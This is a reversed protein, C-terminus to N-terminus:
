PQAGSTALPASLAPDILKATRSLADVVDAQPSALVDRMMEGLLDEIFMYRESRAGWPLRATAVSDLFADEVPTGAYHRATAINGSIALGSAVRKTQVEYSTMYKIYEWALEPHRAHKMIAQGAAYLVTVPPGGTRTPLGVVGVDLGRAGYDILMWHGKLDMAARGELFLNVGAMASQRPTPAAGHQYMLDHLFGVAAASARRDLAGSARTGDSTLIDGGSTWFWPIWFPVVNEFWFGFQRPLQVASARGDEPAAITLREATTLFDQWTWGDRPYPVGAEDFLRKNYFMVMTTFDLPIAYLAGDRSFSERVNAFYDALRFTPDGEVFPRLDLLVDNNMLVASYAGNVHVVDPTSGTLHAMVLKQTYEIHGPIQEIQVRVAPHRQEFGERIERELRMFEDEVAPSGWNAVRLVTVGADVGPDNGCGSAALAALGCVLRLLLGIRCAAGAPTPFGVGRSVWVRAATAM